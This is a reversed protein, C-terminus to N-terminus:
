SLAASHEPLAAVRLEELVEHVRERVRRHDQGWQAIDTLATKLADQLAPQRLVVRVTGDPDSRVPWSAPVTVMRRLLDHLHDLVQVATTPDNIGPSLAREAVDVLCRLGYGADQRLTRDRVLELLGTVASDTLDRSGEVMSLRALPSGAVVFAGLPHLVEVRVDHDTAVRVMPAVDVRDLYGSRPAVVVRTASSVTLAHPRTTPWTSRQGETLLHRTRSATRELVSAVGISRTIHHIFVLFMAIAALVLLFAVSVGLQPVGDRARVSRLVTLAHVFSAAFLGLTHQTIRDELFTQLVRPSYQSSALQLVVMTISFVLGTVSIMAGAITSLVSRAGEIDGAFLLPLHGALWALEVHPLLLGLAVAAATWAAPVIWFPRVVAASWQVARWSRWGRVDDGVPVPLVTAHMM